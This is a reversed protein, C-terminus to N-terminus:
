WFRWQGTHLVYLGLAANAVAHCFICQALSRTRYLLLNFAAGAMFGAFVYHHELGFLFTTILFSSRTFAGLAVAQFSDAILYRLLFSRWFLEEMVPVVLVAGALRFLIMLWRQPGAAFLQPNFGPAAGTPSFGWDMRIWLLFVAVGLLLSFLTVTGHKLDAFDIEQYQHRFFWLTAGVLVIRVPYLLLLSAPPVQVLHRETLIRIAEGIGIFFLFLAFPAIRALAPHNATICYATKNM